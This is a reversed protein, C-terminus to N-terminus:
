FNFYACKISKLTMKLYLLKRLSKLISKLRVLSSTSKFLSHITKRTKWKIKLSRLM